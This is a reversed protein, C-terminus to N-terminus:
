AAPEAGLRQEVGARHGGEAQRVHEQAQAQAEASGREQYFGFAQLRRELQRAHAEAAHQGPLAREVVKSLRLRESINFIKNM